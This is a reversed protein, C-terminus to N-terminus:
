PRRDPPLPLGPERQAGSGPPANKQPM